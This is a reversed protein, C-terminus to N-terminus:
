PIFSIRLTYVILAAKYTLFGLFVPLFQLQDWQTAVIVIGAILALRSQGGSPKGQSGLREVSRALMRLYIIGTCAGLLYGLATQLSYFWWTSGFIVIAMALTTLFIERQLAYYDDMPSSFQAGPSTSASEEVLGQQNDQSPPLSSDTM